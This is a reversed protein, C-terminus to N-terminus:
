PLPAGRALCSRHEGCPYDSVRAVRTLVLREFAWPGDVHPDFPLSECVSTEGRGPRLFLTATGAGWAATGDAREAEVELELPARGYGPAVRACLRPGEDDVIEVSICPRPKDATGCTRGKPGLTRHPPRRPRPALWARRRQKSFLIDFRRMVDLGLLGYSDEASKAIVRGVDVFARGVLLNDIAHIPSVLKDEAVTEAESTGVVGYGALVRHPVSTTTAGSDIIVPVSRQYRDRSATPVFVDVYSVGDAFEVFPISRAGEPVPGQGAEFLGVQREAIAVYLDFRTLASFGLIFPYSSGPVVNVRVDRIQWDGLIVDTYYADVLHVRQGPVSLETTGAFRDEKLLGLRRATGEGVMSNTAGLDLMADVDDGNVRAPVFINPQLAPGSMGIWSGAPYRTPLDSRDLGREDVDPESVPPVAFVRPEVPGAARLNRRVGECAPLTVLLGAFLLVLISRWAM